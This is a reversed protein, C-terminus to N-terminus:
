GNSVIKQLKEWIKVMALTDLECYAKLDKQLQPVDEEPIKGEWMEGWALMADEGSSIGLKEYYGKFEPVLVPLVNKLSASGGFDPDIYYGKKFIEMLDYMRENINLLKDRYDPYREAMETNRGAEFPKNWVIVAGTEPMDKVLQKLFRQGPDQNDLLLLEFHKLKGGPKEVLHLSYQYTISQYPRYGPFYPTGPGYTEYDLFSIPYDLSDLENQIASTNILPEGSKVAMRHLSQIDSLPFEDPIEPISTIGSSKLDIVKNRRLYPL